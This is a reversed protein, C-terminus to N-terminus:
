DQDVQEPEEQREGASRRAIAENQEKAQRDRIISYEDRRRAAAKLDKERRLEEENIGPVSGQTSTENKM